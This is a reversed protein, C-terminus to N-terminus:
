LSWAPLRSSLVMESLAIANIFHANLLPRMSFALVAFVLALLGRLALLWWNRILVRIM